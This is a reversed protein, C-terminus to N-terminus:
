VHARGIERHYTVALTVTSERHSYKVANSLLNTVVRQLGEEDGRVPLPGSPAVVEVTLRRDEAAFHTSERAALIATRLDLASAPERRTPDELRALTLLDDVVRSIRATARQMAAISFQTDAPLPDTAAVLELHGAIASLPNKLEHSVTSLLQTKYTDLERLETVLRQERVLTRSSLMAQGIDRTMEFASAREEATWPEQATRRFLIVHGFCQSGAGVPVVMASENGQDRLLARCEAHDARSILLDDRPEPSLVGVRRHTWCARAMERLLQRLRRPVHLHTSGGAYADAESYTRISLDDARFGELM